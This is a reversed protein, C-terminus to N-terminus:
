TPMQWECNPNRTHVRKCRDFTTIQALYTIAMTREPEKNIGKVENYLKGYRKKEADIFAILNDDIKHM